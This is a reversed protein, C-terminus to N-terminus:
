KLSIKDHRFRCKQKIARWVVVGLGGLVGVALLDNNDSNNNPISEEQEQGVVLPEYQAIRRIEKGDVGLAVANYTTASDTAIQFSGSKLNDVKGFEPEIKLSKICSSNYSLLKNKSDIDLSLESSQQPVDVTWYYVNSWREKNGAKLNLYWKGSLVNDFIFNPNITDVNPGPDVGAYRSLALSFRDSNQTKDWIAEVGTNCDNENSRTFVWKITKPVDPEPLLYKPKPPIYTCTCSPSYTGDNCVQRGVSTDCGSVGGHWSCCGSRAIVLPSYFFTILLCILLALFINRLYKLNIIKKQM